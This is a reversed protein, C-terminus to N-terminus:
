SSILIHRDRMTRWNGAAIGRGSPGYSNPIDRLELIENVTGNPSISRADNGGAVWACRLPTTTTTVV